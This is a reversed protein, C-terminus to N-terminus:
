VFAKVDQNSPSNSSASREILAEWNLRTMKIMVEFIYRFVLACHPDSYGFRTKSPGFKFCIAELIGNFFHNFPVQFAVIQISSM